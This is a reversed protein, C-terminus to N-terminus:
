FRSGTRKRKLDSRNKFVAVVRAKCVVGDVPKYLFIGVHVAYIHEAFGIRNASTNFLQSKHSFIFDYGGVKEFADAEVHVFAYNM